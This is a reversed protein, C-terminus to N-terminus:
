TNPSNFRGSTKAAKLNKLVAEREEELAKLEKRLSQLHQNAYIKREAWEKIVAKPGDGHPKEDLNKKETILSKIEDRVKPLQLDIYVKRVRFAKLREDPTDEPTNTGKLAEAPM